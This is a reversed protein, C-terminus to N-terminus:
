AQTFFRGGTLDTIATTSVSSAGILMRCVRRGTRVHLETLETSRIHFLLGSCTLPTAISAM